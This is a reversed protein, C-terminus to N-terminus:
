NSKVESKAEAAPKVEAAKKAKKHHKKAKVKAETKVEAKAEVKAAPAVEKGKAACKHAEEAKKSSCKHSSKGTLQACSAILGLSVVGTIVSKIFNKNMILFILKKFLKLIPNTTIDQPNPNKLSNV